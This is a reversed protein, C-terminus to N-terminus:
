NFSSLWLFYISLSVQKTFYELFPLLSMFYILKNSFFPYHIRTAVFSEQAPYVYWLILNHVDSHLDVFIGYIM